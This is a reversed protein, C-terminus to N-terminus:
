QEGGIGLCINRGFGIVIRGDIRLTCREDMSQAPQWLSDHGPKVRGDPRGRRFHHVGDDGAGARDKQREARRVMVRHSGTGSRRVGATM